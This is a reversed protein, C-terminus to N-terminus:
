LSRVRIAIQRTKGSRTDLAHLTHTGPALHIVQGTPGDEVRLTESSWRVVGAPDTLPHLLAASSPMEPDLLFETGEAPRLIRLPVVAPAREHLALEGRRFNHPSEFWGAFTEDLLARGEEDYDSVAAVPPLHKKPLWVRRPNGREDALQKGNRPDVKVEVWDEPREWWSPKHNKHLRLM